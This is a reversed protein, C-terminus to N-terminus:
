WNYKKSSWALTFCIRTVISQFDVLIKFISGKEIKKLQKACNCATARKQMSDLLLKALVLHYCLAEIVDSAELEYSTLCKCM